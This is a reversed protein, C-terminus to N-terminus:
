TPCGEPVPGTSAIVLHYKKGTCNVLIWEGGATPLEEEEVESLSCGYAM